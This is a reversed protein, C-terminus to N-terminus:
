LYMNNLRVTAYRLYNKLYEKIVSCRKDINRRFWLFFICYYNKTNNKPIKKEGKGEKKEEMIYSHKQYVSRKRSISEERHVVPFICYHEDFLPTYM